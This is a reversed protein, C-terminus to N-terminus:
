KVMTLKRVRVEQGARAEYFYVGSPVHAGREDTGNWVVQGPGAQRQEDMLTRVLRGRVDFIKLALHGPRPMTFDITTSPNFPNPYAAVAFTPIDPVATAEGPSLTRGFYTLIDSLVRTRASLPAEAKAADPDTYIRRLTSPITIARGGDAATINLLAAAYPYAGPAGAPDTFEALLQAGVTPTIADSRAFRGFRTGPAECNGNERWQLGAAIFVPNGPVPLVGPFSQNGILPGVDNESTEIGLRNTAFDTMLDGSGWNYFDFIATGMALLDRNGLAFWDNLLLIDPDPFMDATDTGKLTFLDNYLGLQTLSVRESMIVSVDPKTVLDYDVGLQLGLQAMSAVWLGTQQGRRTDDWILLDPQTYTGPSGVVESIAPLVRVTFLPDYDLGGGTSSFGVTDAPMISTLAEGGVEDTAALYYRLQDGPFLFGTDPLDFAFRGTPQGSGLDIEWGPVAGTNPLGSTRYPDFVPNPLLRYHIEPAGVLVAGVRVPSIEAVVSDGTAEAGGDADFRASLSGPDSMDVLGNAPFADRALGSTRGSIDPGQAHTAQLRVNDFYPAPTGNTGVISWVFGTEVVYVRLQVFTANPALYQGIPEDFQRYHGDHRDNIHLLNPGTWPAILIAAPDPDSTSRVNWVYFIGPDDNREFAFDDEFATLAFQAADFGAPWAMVPSNIANELHYAPGLLGGVNNLIYGDPGYCYDTCVTGGTGPVVLGDDIFAVQPTSNTACPDTDQLRTWVQAFDGVGNPQPAQFPGLTGDEFDHSVGVGNSLTIVVDDLQAAGISAYSCDADSWAGDSAVRFRVAVENAPTGNYDGPNYTFSVNLPVATATDDFSALQVVQGGSTLCEVYLFDYGPELDHNLVASIDVTCPALTNAVPGSWTLSERWHNGYGGAEDDIDCAPYDLIGCWASYSGNVAHYTDAHWHNVASQTLDRTTWDNWAPAGGSNEFQGNFPAGSGWPGMVWATDTAAKAPNAPGGRVIEGERTLQGPIERALAPGFGILLIVLAGFVSRPGFM